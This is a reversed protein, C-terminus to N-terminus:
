RPSSTSATTPTWRRRSRRPRPPAGRHDRPRRAAVAGGAGTVFIAAELAYTTREGIGGPSRRSCAPRRPRRRTAPTSCCSRARATPTRASARTSAARATCRPRSTAPSARAGPRRRLRRSRATACRGSSASARCCRPCRRARSTASCRSCSTTGTAARPHRLADHALRQLRRHAHEGTLKFVLWADITGFVARGDAARERLGDVNACCGSSRRRRQLVPRAGPRHADRM